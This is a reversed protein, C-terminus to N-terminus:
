AAKSLWGQTELHRLTLEIQYPSFKERKRTNWSHIAEVVEPLNRLGEHSAVWHVTALLELGFPSEFGEVLKATREVRELTDPHADLFIKADETAGPVLNLPTDPDDGEKYGSVLQGDMAKLVHCLNTAFPGYHTKEYNLRLPEGSEQLFYVLKHAELLCVEPDMFGDLYRRMMTTLGAQTADM